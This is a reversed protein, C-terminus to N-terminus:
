NLRQAALVGVGTDLDFFEAFLARSLDLHWWGCGGCADQVVGVRQRGSKWDTLLFRAGLPYKRVNWTHVFCAGPVCLTLRHRRYPTAIVTVDNPDYLLGNAMVRGAFWEGYWTVTHQGNPERTRADADHIARYQIFAFATLVVVVLALEAHNRV